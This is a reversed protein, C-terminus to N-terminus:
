GCCSMKCLNKLRALPGNSDVSRCKRFIDCYGKYNNCPSGPHLLLGHQDTRGEQVFHSNRKFEPLYFSSVCKGDKECALHCLQEAKGETLFCDKLGVFACVSGNCAGAHCVKTADQCAFGDSKPQSDPCVPTTGDCRQENLCESEDRCLRNDERQFFSCKEGNCCQGESPSCQATSRRRCADRSMRFQGNVEHPICCKDAMQECDKDSFGCDCEEGPEKIQNGCFASTREQFCNRKGIGSSFLQKQPDVPVSLLVESLVMSINAVSCKSFKANNPKDGSTASAFMIYNGDPLGPQCEQPFDHPSGFNHGIEHALTLQSVRTPVRNGYNMLTVIGTNLSRFVWGRSGENYRQYIQCIGGATNHNPSGLRGLCTRPNASHNRQSNINLYNSVDVNEECFPNDSGPTPRGRHCTDPTFISTRQIVFNLGQIGRFDTSEYILNVAKIHNYFLSVIEERTRVDNRNGEKNFIHEYLKQDAQIYISCTRVRHIPRGDIMDVPVSLLSRKPRTVNSYRNSFEQYYEDKYFYQPEEHKATSAYLRQEGSHQIEEMGRRVSSNLGCDHNEEHQYPKEVSRKKRLKTQNIADDPYIISHYDTPRDEKDFYRAVKDVTYSTGDGLRIHGDFIGDLISGYVRSHLDGRVYGEYLFRYPKVVHDVKQGNEDMYFDEPFVNETESIPDLVLHLIRNPVKIKMSVPKSTGDTSRKTRSSTLPKYNLTEYNDLFQNVGLGSALLFISFFLAARHDM